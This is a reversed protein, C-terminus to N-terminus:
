LSNFQIIIIFYTTTTAFISLLTSRKIQFFEAATFSPRKDKILSRLSRLEEKEKSNLPLMEEVRYCNTLLKHIEKIALDCSFIIMVPELNQM